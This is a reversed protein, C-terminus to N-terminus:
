FRYLSVRREAFVDTRPAVLKNGADALDIEAEAGGAGGGGDLRGVLEGSPDIIAVTRENVAVVFVRNEVARTRLLALDDPADTCVLMEAGDLAAVRSAAFSRMADGQMGAIKVPGPDANGEGAPHCCIQLNIGELCELFSKRAAATRVPAIVLGVGRGALLRFYAAAESGVALEEAAQSSFAAVRVRRSSGAAPCVAPIGSLLRRRHAEAITLAKPSGMVIRAAILAAGTPPAEALLEGGRDVIRSMGVYGTGPMELGSKDSCVFPVGFERARAEILYSVQPNQYRGPDRSGNIWCTPMAILGAGEAVLTALIEPVRTEACITVGIRGLDTDFVRIEDGPSYWDRDANWLFRKRAIGVLEGRDDVLVASNFLAQGTDEVFGCVIHM